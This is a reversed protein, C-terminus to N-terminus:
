FRALLRAPNDVLVQRVAAAGIGRELAPVARLGLHALGPMGGYSRFRSRRALDGGFLLRQGAGLDVARAACDVLTSTPWASLRTWGDYGLYAGAAAFEAHLVPDPTRDVHALVVADAAVGEAGLLELVEFAVTAYELHVMVPVGTARHVAGVAGLVRREFASVRWYGLGAKV